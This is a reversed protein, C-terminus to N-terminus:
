EIFTHEPEGTRHLRAPPGTVARDAPSTNWSQDQDNYRLQCTQKNVSSCAATLVLCAICACLLVIKKMINVM